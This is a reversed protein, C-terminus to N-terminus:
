RRRKKLKLLKKGKKKGGGSFGTFVSREPPTPVERAVPLVGSSEPSKDCKERASSSLTDRERKNNEILTKMRNIKETMDDMNVSDPKMDDVDKKIGNIETMLEEFNGSSESTSDEVCKLLKQVLAKWQETEEEYVGALEKYADAVKNCGDVFGTFTKVNTRTDKATNTVVDIRSQLQSM